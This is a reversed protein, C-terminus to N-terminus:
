SNANMMKKHLNSHRRHFSLHSDSSFQRMCTFCYVIKEEQMKDTENSSEFFSGIRRTDLKPSESAQKGNICNDALVLGDVKPDLKDFTNKEDGVLIDTIESLVPEAAKAIAVEFLPITGAYQPDLTNELEVKQFSQKDELKKYENTAADYYYGSKALHDFLQKYYAQMYQQQQYNQEQRSETAEINGYLEYFSERTLKSMTGTVPFGNLNFDPIGVVRLLYEADESSYCLVIGFDNSHGTNRNKNLVADKVTV